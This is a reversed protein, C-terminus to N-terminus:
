IWACAGVGNTGPRSICLTQSLSHLISYSAWAYARIDFHLKDPIDSREDKDDMM